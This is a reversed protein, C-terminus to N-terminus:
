AKNVSVLLVAETCVPDAASPTRTSGIAGFTANTYDGSGGIAVVGNGGFNPQNFNPHNVINFFESRFEVSYRERFPFTKFVSFDLNHLGPGWTQDRKDGLAAAGNLSVCNPASGAIPTLAGPTGGLLCPQTFASPNGFWFPGHIGGATKVHAGLKPNGTIIDNCGLGSATGTHCGFGLPQGGQLTVIWNTSWGGLVGNAVGGQNMFERGKGFPLQYIGSFHIVNKIDFDSLSYDFKPGLGPVAYARLTDAGTGNLLDGADSMAKSWTYTFLFTLGHSVQQQLKTQLGHYSSIGDTAQYSGGGFDPFPYCSLKGPSTGVAFNGYPCGPGTTIGAPM